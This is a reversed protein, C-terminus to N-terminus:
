DISFAKLIFHDQHNGGSAIERPLIAIVQRTELTITTWRAKESSLTARLYHQIWAVGYSM